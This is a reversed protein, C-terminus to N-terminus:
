TPRPWGWSGDSAARPRKRTARASCSVFIQNSYSDFRIAPTLDYNIGSSICRTSGATWPWLSM